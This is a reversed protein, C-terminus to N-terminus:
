ETRVAQGDRIRENGKVVVQQNAEIGDAIIGVLEGLHGVVTVTVMHALGNDYLFIVNNGNNNIVADRPVLLSEVAADIPLSVQASMGEILLLDTKLNFKAVFTRTSIDGRPILTKFQGQIAQGAVQVVVEKGPKLYAIISAPVDVQAEFSHNDALTAIIGGANVWEGAEVLNEIILGDFPARVTKKKQELLLRDLRAKLVAALKKLRNLRTGYTEFESTAISDQEHLRAIRDYDKQAQDLDVQNQDFTAQTGVIGTQLLDDDLRILRDGRKVADGDDVYTQLVIGDIEAAVEATRAFYITGIFNATPEAEGRTVQATTVLMPPPGGAQKAQSEAAAPDTACFLSVATILFFAARYM